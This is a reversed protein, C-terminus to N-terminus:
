QVMVTVEADLERSASAREDVDEHSEGEVTPGSTAAKDHPMEVAVRPVVTGLVQSPACLPLVHEVRNTVARM